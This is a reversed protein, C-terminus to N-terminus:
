NSSLTSDRLGEQASICSIQLFPRPWLITERISKQRGLNKEDIFGLPGLFCWLGELGPLNYANDVQILAKIDGENENELKLWKIMEFLFSFTM